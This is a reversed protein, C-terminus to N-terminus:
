KEVIERGHEQLRQLPQQTFTERLKFYCLCVNKKIKNQSGENENLNRNNRKWAHSGTSHADQVSCVGLGFQFLCCVPPPVDFLVCMLSVSMLHGNAVPDSVFRLLVFLDVRRGFSFNVQFPGVGASSMM